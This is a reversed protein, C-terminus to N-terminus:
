PQVTIPNITIPNIIPKEPQVPIFSPQNPNATGKVLANAQGTAKIGRTHWMGRNFINKVRDASFAKAVGGVVNLGTVVGVTTTLHQNPTVAKYNSLYVGYPTEGPAGPLAMAFEDFSHDGAVTTPLVVKVDRSKIYGGSACSSLLIALLLSAYKM